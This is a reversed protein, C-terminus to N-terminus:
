DGRGDAIWNIRTDSWPREPDAGALILGLLLGLSIGIMSILTTGLVDTGGAAGEGIILTVGELGLAGPVLLWFGPLFTVLPTPGSRQRSAFVAMPTMAVAGFFASLATGFFLGGIVQGAYAVYLVLLIWLQARRRAGNYWAIGIGFLGVGLWPVFAAVVGEGGTRIDGGPVGVLQAGALVGLALLILRMAGAALRSAGSVMQGTSLELVGITLLGGPLFTILPAILAPFVTLDEFARAAAFVAASVATAAVLPWFAQYAASQRDTALRLLGVLVGLLAALTLERWGGRLVMALGVTSVVYAGLLLRPTAAPVSARIRALERRGARVGIAAHEADRVLHLVDDIQDLRLAGAASTRAETAVTGGHQVSLVLSSPLVLVGLDGIGNVEAIGRLTSEVHGVADGADLLAEGLELLFELTEKLDEVAGVAEGDHRHRDAEAVTGRDAERPRRASPIATRRRVVVVSAIGIVALVSAAIAISSPPIGSDRVNPQVNPRTVVTTGSEDAENQPASTAPATAASTPVSAETPETSPTGEDDGSLPQAPTDTPAMVTTTPVTGDPEAGSAADVGTSMAVLVVLLLGGLGLM